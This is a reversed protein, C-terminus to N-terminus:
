NRPGYFNRNSLRGARDEGGWFGWYGLRPRARGLARLAMASAKLAGAFLQYGVFSRLGRALLCYDVRSDKRRQALPVPHSHRTIARERPASQFLSDVSVPGLPYM